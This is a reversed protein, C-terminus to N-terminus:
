CGVVVLPSKTAAGVGRRAAYGDTTSKNGGTIEPATHRAIEIWHNRCGQFTSVYSVRDPVAFSIGGLLNLNNQDQIVSIGATWSVSLMRGNVPLSSLVYAVATAGSGASDSVTVIPASTCDAGYTILNIGVIHGANDQLAKATPEASCGGGSFSVAPSTSYASGRETVLVAYVTQYNTSFFYPLLASVKNGLASRVIIDGVGDPYIAGENGSTLAVRSGDIWNDQRNGHVQANTVHLVYGHFTSCGATLNDEVTTYPPDALVLLGVQYANACILRNRRVSIHHASMSFGAIGGDYTTVHIQAGGGTWGNRAILNDAIEVSQCAGCNIGNGGNIDSNGNSTIINDHIKTHVAGGTDIGYFANDQVTNDHVNCGECLASNIGAAVFGTGNGNHTATNFAIEVHRGGAMIIGYYGNHSVQNGSITCNEVTNFIGNTPQAATGGTIESTLSAGSGGNYSIDNNIIACNAFQTAKPPFEYDIVSVGVKGNNRIVSDRLMWNWARYEFYIGNGDNDHLYLRTFRSRTNKADDTASQVTLASGAGKTDKIEVDEFTAGWDANLVVAYGIATNNGKNGDVTLNSIHLGGCNSSTIVSRAPTNDPRRFITKGEGDGVIQLPCPPSWDSLPYSDAPFYLVRGAAKARNAATMACVNINVSKSCPAQYEKINVTGLRISAEVSGTSSNGLHQTSSVPTTVKAHIMGAVYLLVLFATVWQRISSRM